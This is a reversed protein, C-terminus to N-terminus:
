FYTRVARRTKKQSAQWVAKTVFHGMVSGLLVDSAWHRNHYIRSVATVSAITYAVPAVWKHEQFELSLATAVTFITNSHGSPSSTYGKKTFPLAYDWSSNTADPRNRRILKKAATYMVTSIVLSKAGTLGASEIKPQHALAGVAYMAPFIYLGYTNGFPEVVNAISEVANSRNHQVVNRIEWDALLLGGTGAMVISFRMWDRKTWHAPRTITYKVAPIFSNLYDKNLKYHPTTTAEELTDSLAIPSTISDVQAIAAKCFLFWCGVLLIRVYLAKKM